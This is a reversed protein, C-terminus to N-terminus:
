GPLPGPGHPLVLHSHARPLAILIPAARVRHRTLAGSGLGAATAKGEKGSTKMTNGSGEAQGKLVAEPCTLVRLLGAPPSTTSSRPEQATPDSGTESVSLWLVLSPNKGGYLSLIPDM